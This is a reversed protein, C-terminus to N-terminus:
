TEIFLRALHREPLWDQVSISLLYQTESDVEIFRPEKYPELM